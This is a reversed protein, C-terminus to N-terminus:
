KPTECGITVRLLVRDYGDYGGEAKHIVRRNDWIVLHGSDWSLRFLHESLTIKRVLEDIKDSFSDNNSNVLDVTYVPNIFLSKEGTESITRVLPHYVFGNAENSIKIKMSRTSDDNSFLGKPGYAKAASHKARINNFFIKECPKLRDYASVCDAFTTQGGIPPVKKAYLFTYVPPKKQFSWDSHWDSGFIPTTEQADRKVEIVHEYNELSELYPDDAFQGFKSGLEELAPAKLNLGRIVVFKYKSLASKIMCVSANDYSYSTEFGDIYCGFNKNLEQIIM